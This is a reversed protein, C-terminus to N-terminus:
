PVWLCLFDFSTFRYPEISVCTCMYMVCKYSNKKWDGYFNLLSPFSLFFFSKRLLLLSCTRKLMKVQKLQVVVCFSVFGVRQCKFILLYILATYVPQRTKQGDEGDGSNILWFGAEAWNIKMYLLNDEKWSHKGRLALNLSLMGLILSQGRASVLPRLQYEDASSGRIVGATPGNIKTQFQPSNEIVRPNNVM